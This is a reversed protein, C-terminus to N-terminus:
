CQIFSASGVHTHFFCFLPVSLLPGLLPKPRRDSSQCLSFSLSSAASRQAAATWDRGLGCSSDIAVLTVFLGCV